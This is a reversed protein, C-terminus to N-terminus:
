QEIPILLMGAGVTQRDDALGNAGRIASVTTAYQKAIDWLREGEEAGRLILTVDGMGPRERTSVEVSTIDQYPQEATHTLTGYGSVRLSVGDEGAPIAITQVTVDHVNMDHLPTNAQVPIQLSRHTQYVHGEDDAYLVSVETRLRTEEPEAVVGTCVTKASIYQSVQMGIPITESGDIAFNGALACSQMKGRAAQVDLEHSTQYLDQITSVTHTEDRMILANAGIGVSFQGGEGLICDIHRVSLRVTVPEDEGLGEVDPMQTFPVVQTVQQLGDMDDRVLMRLVADGRILVRGNMARCENTRLACDTHVLELDDASNLTLDDLITFECANVARLLSVERTDYLVELPIEGSDIRETFTLMSPQYVTSEFCLRATVSIKRSNVAKASVGAVSCRVFCTSAGGVGQAEEIHAFSVPIDLRRLKNGGEPQYLVCVVTTGSVLIRDNQPSEDKVVAMGDAYVIRAIDPDTDPVIADASEEYVTIANHMVDYYPISKRILEM